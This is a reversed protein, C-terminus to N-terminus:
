PPPLGLATRIVAGHNGFAEDKLWVDSKAIRSSIERRMDVTLPVGSGSEIEEPTLYQALELGLGQYEFILRETDEFLGEKLVEVAKNTAEYSCKADELVKRIKTLHERLAPPETKALADVQAILLNLDEAGFLIQEQMLKRLNVLQRNASVLSFAKEKFLEKVLDKYRADIALASLYREAAARTKVEIAALRRIEEIPAGELGLRRLEEIPISANTLRQTAALRENRLRTLTVYTKTRSTLQFDNDFDVKPGEGQTIDLAVSFGMGDVPPITLHPITLVIDGESRDLTTAKGPLLTWSVGRQSLLVTCDISKITVSPYCFPASAFDFPCTPITVNGWATFTSLLFPTSRTPFVVNTLDKRKILLSFKTNAYPWSNTNTFSDIRIAEWESFVRWEGGAVIIKPARKENGAMVFEQSTIDYKGTWLINPIPRQALEAFRKIDGKPDSSLSILQESLLRVLFLHSFREDSAYYIDAPSRKFKSVFSIPENRSLLFKVQEVKGLKLALSLSTPARGKTVELRKKINEIDKSQDLWERLREVSGSEIVALLEPDNFEEPVELEVSRTRTRFLDGIKPDELIRGDGYGIGCEADNLQVPKLILFNTGNLLKEQAFLYQAMVVLLILGIAVRLGCSCWRFFISCNSKEHSFWLNIVAMNMVSIM